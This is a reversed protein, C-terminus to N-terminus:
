STGVTFFQRYFITVIFHASLPLQLVTFIINLVLCTSQSMSILQSVEFWYNEKRWRNRLKQFAFQSISRSPKTQSSFIFIKQWTSLVISCMDHPRCITSSSNDNHNSSPVTKNLNLQSLFCGGGWIDTTWFLHMEWVMTWHNSKNLSGSIKMHGNQVVTMVSHKTEMKEWLQSLSLRSFVCKSKDADCYFCRM